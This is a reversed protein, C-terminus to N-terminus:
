WYGLVSRRRQRNAKLIGPMWELSCVVEDGRCCLAFQPDVGATKSNQVAWRVGRANGVVASLASAAVTGIAVKKSAYACVVVGGSKSAYWM